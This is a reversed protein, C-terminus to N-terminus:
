PIKGPLISFPNGNGERPSRELGLISVVDGANVPLNKVVLCAWCIYQLFGAQKM